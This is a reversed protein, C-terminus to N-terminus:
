PREEAGGEGIIRADHHQLCHIGTLSSPLADAPAEPVAGVGTFCTLCKSCGTPRRCPKPLPSKPLPLSTSLASLPNVALTDDGGHNESCVISGQGWSTCYRGLEKGGRRPRPNEVGEQSTCSKPSLYDSTRQPLWKGLPVLKEGSISGHTEM